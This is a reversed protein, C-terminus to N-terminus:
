FVIQVSACVLVALSDGELCNGGHVSGQQLPSSETM